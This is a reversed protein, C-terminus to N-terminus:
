EREDFDPVELSNPAPAPAEPEAPTEEPVAVKAGGRPPPGFLYPLGDPRIAAEWRFGDLKPQSQTNIAGLPDLRGSPATLFRIFRISGNEFDLSMSSCATKNVGIYAGKKDQAYYIVEANGTVDTRRLETSDFYAYINKGKVQNFFILDPSTIVLARKKLHVKDLADNKLYIDITDALLQSTDQWLIPDEYLTLISDTTNFSLSDCLAQLDSKYVRVDHYASIRRTSNDAKEVKGLSDQRLVTPPQLLSSDAEPRIFTTDTTITTDITIAVTDLQLSDPVSRATDVVVSDSEPALQEVVKQSFLTDATLYLSDGDLITILLARNNRGGSAKLYGTEENYNAREAQIELNASTDKWVVNGQALGLGTANDFDLGDAVLIMNGDVVEPRGGSVKYTNNPQDYVVYEGRVTREPERLLANGELQYTERDKRYTIKNARALREDGERVYAEGTLVYEQREGFYEISDAAAIQEGSRYQANQRFVAENTAVRYFGDECYIEATDTRIVTPGLFYVTETPADYMLTDARLEFDEGIVVVSDKFYIRDADAYYYGLTSFLQTNGDTLRGGTTYTALKTALDYRLAKTYLERTGNQLVVNGRLDALETEANYDLYDSFAVISDGQQIIVNDYAYLQISNVLDASDCYMYISDKSLEVEGVLRQIPASGRQEILRLETANDIYVKEKGSTDQKVAAPTTQAAVKVGGGAMGLLFLVAVLFLRKFLLQHM